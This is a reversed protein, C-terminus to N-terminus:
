CGLPAYSTAGGVLNSGQYYMCGSGDGGLFHRGDRSQGSWPSQRARQQAIAYLNGWAPGGEPGFTGRADVWWRGRWVPGLQSLGWVDLPHLERGNIFVGTGGGSADGRLRGGLKLGAPLLGMTPGGEFGWAGSVADYWYRGPRARTSFRQEFARVEDASLPQANVVVAPPQAGAAATALLASMLSFLTRM